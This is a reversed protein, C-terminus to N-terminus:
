RSSPSRRSKHAKRDSDRNSKYKENSDERRSARSKESKNSASETPKEATYRRDRQKSRDYDEAENRHTRKPPPSVSKRRPSVSKRKTTAQSSSSDKAARDRSSKRERAPSVAPRTDKRLSENRSKTLSREIEDKSKYVSANIRQEEEKKKQMESRKAEIMEQPIGHPSNQAELLLNWLEGMFQKAKTKGLFGTMMIQM